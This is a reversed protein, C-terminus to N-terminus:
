GMLLHGSDHLHQVGVIPTLTLDTGGHGDSHLAFATNAEQGAVVYSAHQGNGYAVTLVDGVKQAGTVATNLFDITDGLHWQSITGKLGTPMGLELASHSGDFIVNNATGGALVREIGDHITTNVATGGAFVIEVGGANITTAHSEAGNM